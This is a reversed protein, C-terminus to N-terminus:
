NASGELLVGRDNGDATQDLKLGFWNGAIKANSAAAQVLIGPAGNTIALGRIEVDDGVVWLGIAANGAQFGVCPKFGATADCDGGDITVAETIVPGTGTPVVITSTGADGTFVAADFGFADGEPNATANAEEIAARLTCTEPLGAVTDCVGNTGADPVDGTNNVTFTAALAGPALAMATMAVALLTGFCLWRRSNARSRMRRESPRM